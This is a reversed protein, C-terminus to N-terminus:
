QEPYLTPIGHNQAWEDIRGGETCIITVQPSNEFANDAINIVSEPITVYLLSANDAFARSGIDTVGDGVDHAQVNMGAFAESEIVKLGSPMSVKKELGPLPDVFKYRWKADLLSANGSDIMLYFAADETDHYRVNAIKGCNVFADLEITRLSAPLEVSTLTSCSNFANSGIVEIGEPIDISALKRDFWFAREPIREIGSSLQVEELGYCQCFVREGLSTVSDPMSFSTLGSSQFARAGIEMLGDPIDIGSLQTTGNFAYAGISTVTTPIVAENLATFDRFAYDGVTRVGESVVVKEIIASHGVWPAAANENFNPMAGSGTVSLTTGEVEWNMTMSLAGSTAAPFSGDGDDFHWQAGTLSSNGSAIMMTTAKDRTGRYTVSTLSSCGSFANSGIIILSDPLSVSELGNCHIFADTSISTMHDPIVISSLADSDYFTNSPLDTLGESLTIGTLSDCNWFAMTGLKTVSDPLTLSTLGSYSFASQGIESVHEPIVMTSLSSTRYFANNGIRVLSDPLSVNTLATFGTFAGNGISTIGSSVVVEDISTAMGYWPASQGSAYDPMAGNGTITLRNGEVQWAITQTLQGSTPSPIIGDYGGDCHWTAGILNSNTAPIQIGAAEEATGRFIVDTLGNCPYFANEEVYRLGKPLSIRELGTSYWFAKTGIRQVNDPIIIEAPLTSMDCMNAPIATLGSSLNITELSKCYSFVGYGLEIVSEPLSIETLGSNRFASEGITTVSGPIEITKLGSNNCFAFDGISTVTTPISVSSLNTFDTFTYAGITKVGPEIILTRIRAAYKNWPAHFSSSCDPMSGKGSVILTGNFDLRWDFDPSLIGEAARPYTGVGDSFTWEANILPNNYMGIILKGAEEMTGGFVVETLNAAGSFASSGITNMVAPLSVSTMAGCNSFASDRIMSVHEPLTVSTLGTNAFASASIEAIGGPLTIQTMATCNSFANRGMFTVTDPLAISALSSCGNFAYEGISRVGSPVSLNTLKGAYSFAYSGITTLTEPLTASILNSCGSFANSSISTVGEGITLSTIIGRKGYWPTLNDPMAGTGTISLSTGELRWQLENTLFGSTPETYRANNNDTCHWVADLLCTNGSSIAIARMEEVTGDYNVETIPAGSFASSYIAKVSSPIAITTLSSNGAFANGYIVNVGEPINLVTLAANRLMSEPIQSLGSSIMVSALSRMGTFAYNGVSKVSDPIELSILSTCYSFANQGITLLHGPLTLDALKSCNSFAYDGISILSEPLSVSVLQACGSFAYAGISRVGDALTITKIKTRNAYWPAALTGTFAPIVGNGSVTLKGDADLVWILGTTLVGSTEGEEGSGGSITSAPYNGTSDACHWVAQLLSQNAVAINIKPVDEMNGAYYVDAVATNAFANSNIQTVSVPFTVASLSGSNEFAHSGITTVHEPITISEIGSTSMFSEPISTLSGPLTIQKLAACNSFVGIGFSIKTDPLSIETLHSCGSFAYAGISVVSGPISINALATCSGFANNGIATLSAPLEVSTLNTCGYFLYDGINQVGNEVIVSTILEQSAFWPVSFGTSYDPMRGEGYIRLTTGSLSWYVATELNGESDVRYHWHARVLYENGEGIPLLKAQEETGDFYVDQLSFCDSLAYAGIEEIGSPLVLTTLASCGSLMHDPIETVKEPVTLSTLCVDNAFAYSGITEVSEPLQVETLMPMDSYANDSVSTVGESINIQSIVDKYATWPAPNLTDFTSMEGDGSVSLAAGDFSWQMSSGCIGETAGVGQQTGDSCHWTAAGFPLNSSGIKIAQAQAKTGSFYVDTLESCSYALASDKITEVGEPITVKTIHSYGCCGYPIEKINKPLICEKGYSNWIICDGFETVTDPIVIRNFTCSSFVYNDIRELGDPLIIDGNFNCESFAYDGIEEIGEPLTMSSLNSCGMFAYSGITTVGAEVVLEQIELKRMEWPPTNYSDYNDMPGEGFMEEQGAMLMRM